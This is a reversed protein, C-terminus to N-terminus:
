GGIITTAEAEDKIGVALFNKVYKLLFFTFRRVIM